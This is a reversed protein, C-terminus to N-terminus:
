DRADAVLVMVSRPGVIVEQLGDLSPAQSMEFIDEPEPMSTNVAVKWCEGQGLTPLQYPLGEWYMNIAVYIDRQQGQTHKGCLWFALCRSGASFDPAWLQTGHFSIDPKGSGVYDRGQYFYNACLVPNTRRFQIMM